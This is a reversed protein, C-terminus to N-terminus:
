SQGLVGDMSPPISSDPIDLDSSLPSLPPSLPPPSPSLPPPSLSLYLSAAAKAQSPTLSSTRSCVSPLSRKETERKKKPTVKGKEKAKVTRLDNKDVGKSPSSISSNSETVKLERKMSQSLFLLLFVISLSLSFLTYQTFPLPDCFPLSLRRSAVLM